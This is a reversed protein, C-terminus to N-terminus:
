PAIRKTNRSRSRGRHGQPDPGALARVHRQDGLEDALERAEFPQLVLDGRGLLLDGLGQESLPGVRLGQDGLVLALGRAEGKEKVVERRKEGLGADVQLVEEDLRLMSAVADAARRQPRRSHATRSQFWSAM